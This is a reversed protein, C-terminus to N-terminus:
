SMLYRFLLFDLHRLYPNVYFTKCKELVDEASWTLDMQRGFKPILHISREIQTVPIISARRRHHRTSRSVQYMELDPIPSQFATFWEVYAFPHPFAGYEDPLGFIVRVQAVALELKM